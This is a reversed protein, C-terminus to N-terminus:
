PLTMTLTLIKTHPKSYSYPEPMLPRSSALGCRGTCYAAGRSFFVSIDSGIAASWDLLQAATAPRGAAENAAWLTTAANGSAFGCLKCDACFHRSRRLQSSVGSRCFGPAALPYCSCHQVLTSRLMDLVQPALNQCTGMSALRASHQKAAPQQNCAASTM